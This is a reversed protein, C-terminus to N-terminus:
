ERRRKRGLKRSDVDREVSHDSYVTRGLGSACTRVAEREAAAAASSTSLHVPKDTGTPKRTTPLRCGMGTASRLFLFVRLM